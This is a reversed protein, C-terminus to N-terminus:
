ECRIASRRLGPILIETEGFYNGHSWLRFPPKGSTLAGGVSVVTTARLKDKNRDPDSYESFTGTLVRYMSFAHESESYVIQGAEYKRKVGSIATFVSLRAPVRGTIRVISSIFRNTAVKGDLITSPLRALLTRPFIGSVIMKKLAEANNQEHVDTIQSTHAWYILDAAIETDELEGLSIMTTVQDCLKSHYAEEETARTLIDIMEGILISNLLTGSVMAFCLFIMEGMTSGSMDGFGVTTFVTCIFYMSTVWQM